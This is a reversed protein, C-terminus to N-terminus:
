RAWLTLVFGVGGGVSLLWGVFFTIALSALSPAVAALVGLAVLV